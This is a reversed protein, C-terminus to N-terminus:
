VVSKRDAVFSHPVETVWHDWHRYMLDETEYAVAKDLAPDSDKPTKVAGHVSSVYIVKEKDPSLKFESVGAPVNSLCRKGVLANRKKNLSAKWIQGDQIFMIGSADGLWRANSVSHGERTLQIKDTGDLSCVFLNRCSRNDEVSTYSVGYLISKAHDVDSTDVKESNNKGM